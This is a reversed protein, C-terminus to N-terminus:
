ILFQVKYSIYSLNLKEIIELGEIFVTGKFNKYNVSRKQIESNPVDEGWFKTLVNLVLPFVM